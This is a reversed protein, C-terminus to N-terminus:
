ALRGGRRVLMERVETDSIAAGHTDVALLVGGREVEAGYWKAEHENYGAKTLAGAVAGSTAGVIAGAAIAGGTAGLITALSGAAIFPGVGPILAAALGFLAGIGAGGLLGKGTADAVDDTRRVDDIVAGGGGGAFHAEGEHRSIVSLQSDTIGLRRLDEVAAEAQMRDSFIASVRNFM